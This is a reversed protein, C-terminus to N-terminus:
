IVPVFLPISQIFIHLTAMKLIGTTDIPNPLVTYSPFSTPDGSTVHALGRTSSSPVVNPGIFVMLGNIINSDGRICAKKDNYCVSLFELFVILFLRSTPYM